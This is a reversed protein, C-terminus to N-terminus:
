NNKLREQVILYDSEKDVDIGIEPYPVEIAKGKYGLLEYARDEVEPITLKKAFFKILFSLGLLKSLKWPKKRYSIARKLIDRADMFAHARVLFLNGGTFTGEKVTGYTRKTEPFKEECVEKRLIPYFFDADYKEATNVFYAIMESTILPIDSTIILVFDDESPNLYGIAEEINELIGGRDPLLKINDESVVPILVDKPGTIIINRVGPTDRVADLVYLIMPRENFPILAKTSVNFQAELVGNKKRGALIIVDFTLKEEMKKSKM